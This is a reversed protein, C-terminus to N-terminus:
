RRARVDDFHVTKSTCSLSADLQLCIRSHVSHVCAHACARPLAHTRPNTRAHTHMCARVCAPVRACVGPDRSKAMVLSAVRWAGWASSVLLATHVVPGGPWICRQGALGYASSVRWATYVASGGPWM